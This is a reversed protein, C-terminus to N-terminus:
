LQDPRLHETVPRWREKVPRFVRELGNAPGCDCYRAGPETSWGSIGVPPSRDPMRTGRYTSVSASPAARLISDWSTAERPLGSAAGRRSRHATGSGRMSLAIHAIARNRVRLLMGGAVGVWAERGATALTRAGPVALRQRFTMTGPDFVSVENGGATVVWVGFPGVALAGPWLEGRAFRALKVVQGNRPDIGAVTSDVQSAVWVLRHGVSVASPLPGVRM